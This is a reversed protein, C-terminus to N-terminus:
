QLNITMPVLLPQVILTEADELAVDAVTRLVVEVFIDQGALAQTVATSALSSANKKATMDISATSYVGLLANKILLEQENVDGGVRASVLIDAATLPLPSNAASVVPPSYAIDSLGGSTESLGSGIIVTMSGPTEDYGSVVYGSVAYSTGAAGAHETTESIGHGVTAMVTVTGGIKGTSGDASITYQSIKGGAQGHPLSAWFLMANKRCTLGVARGFPISWTLEILRAGNLLLARARLLLYEISQVGRPTAFYHAVSPDTLPAVGDIPVTIDAGSIELITEDPPNASSSTNYDAPDTLVPQIDSDMTFNIHETRAAGQEYTVALSAQIQSAPVFAWQSDYHMPINISDGSPDTAGPLTAWQPFAPPANTPAGFAGAWIIGPQSTEYLLQKIYRGTEVPTSTNITTSMPDGANHQKATNHWTYNYQTIPHDAVDALDIAFTGSAAAWGGGLSAGVKPWNSVVSEGTYSDFDFSAIHIAPGTPFKQTWGVSAKVTVSTMPAGSVRLNVSTPEVGAPAGTSSEFIETGDEGICIDSYSVHLPLGNEGRSCHWRASRAELATDVDGTHDASSLRLKPDIFLRDYFPLVALAEALARRQLAFDIPKAVFTLTVLEAFGTKSGAMDPIGLLRGFFLPQAGATGSDSFSLWSWVKRGTSLLGVKPNKITLSLQACEGERHTITFSFVNEDYRAHTAHNYTTESSNVWAFYFLV